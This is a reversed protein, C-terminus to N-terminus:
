SRAAVLADMPGIRSGFQEFSRALHDWASPSIRGAPQGLGKKARRLREFSRELRETSLRGTELASALAQRITIFSEEKEAILIDCGANIARVAIDGLSAGSHAALSELGYALALGRYGLKTRLLGGVIASSLSAACPYDCDYAQYASNSLLVLPLNPLNVRFPLLDEHWLRAMSKAIQALEGNGPPISGWGPFHKGCALVRHCGLGRLFAAGCAGVHQPLSGFARTGLSKSSLPTALDLLPAFNTNFGLHSLAAGILEGSREVATPGRWATVAPSPLPPLLSALPNMSGGEERIALFLRSAICRTITCLFERTIGPSPMFDTTILIGGPTLRQLQREFSSSWQPKTISLVLLDGLRNWPPFKM